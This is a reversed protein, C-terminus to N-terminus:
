VGFRLRTADYISDFNVKTLATGEWMAIEAVRTGTTPKGLANGTAMLEMTHPANTTAPNNYSANFTNTSAVQAVDGNVYFHSVNGGNEDLSMAIFNWADENQDGGDSVVFFPNFPSIDSQVVFTLSTASAYSLQASGRIPTGSTGFCGAFSASPMYIWGVYSFKAGNKHLNEMWTANGSNYRFFDGGDFSFYENKTLRGATGNFLPDDGSSSGTAGRFFDFNNGSLDLFSQGSSYSNSDGADFCIELNTTLSLDTLIDIFPDFAVNSPMFPFFSM